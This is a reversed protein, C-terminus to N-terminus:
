IGDYLFGPIQVDYHWNESGVKTEVKFASGKSGKLKCMMLYNEMWVEVYVLLWCGYQPTLAVKPMWGKMEVDYHM